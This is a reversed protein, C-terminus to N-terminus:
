CCKKTKSTKSQDEKDDNVLQFYLEKEGEPGILNIYDVILEHIFKKFGVADSCASTIVFKINYEKAKNIIDEDSIVQEEFLDSKNAVLALIYNDKGLIDKVYEVWYNIQDFSNQNDIAFVIMIIKSGKIFIQNLSRFREQGATDWLSFIYRKNNYDFANQTFSSSISSNNDPDFDGGSAVSILNTKGVGTEGLLIIKIGKSGDM